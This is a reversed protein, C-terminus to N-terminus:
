GAPEFTPDLLDRLGDGLFNAGAATIMIALGPFMAIWAGRVYDRGDALMNGWTPTPPPVGLGLFGLAAELIIMRAVEFSALVLMPSLVLPLVHRLVIRADGAGLGRAAVVFERERLSLVSARVTRADMSGPPKLRPLIQQARPSRPALWEAAGAM